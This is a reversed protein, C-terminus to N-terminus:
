LKIYEQGDLVFSQKEKDYPIQNNGLCLFYRDTLTIKGTQEDTIPIDRWISLSYTQPEDGAKQITNDDLIEVYDEANDGESYYTGVLSVSEEDVVDSTDVEGHENEGAAVVLATSICFMALGIFILTFGIINQKM